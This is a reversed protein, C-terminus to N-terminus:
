GCCIEQNTDCCPKGQDIGEHTHAPKMHEKGEAKRCTKTKRGKKSGKDASDEPDRGTYRSYRTDEDPTGKKEAKACLMPRQRLSEKM